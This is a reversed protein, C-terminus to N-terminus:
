PASGEPQILAHASESRAAADPRNETLPQLFASIADAVAAASERELALGMHDAGEVTRHVGRTSQTAIRANAATLARRGRDDPATASLVLLPVDGLRERADLAQASTDPMAARVAAVSRWYWTTRCHADFAAGAEGPLDRAGPMGGLTAALRMLGLGAITEGHRMIWADASRIAADVDPPFDPTGWAYGPDLFVLGAVEDPFEDALLAGVHAGWSHGVHVYPGAEGAAAVLLHLERAASSADAESTREDSWGWGARDYSCVRTVNALRPQVLAWQASSSGDGHDLLVTPSGAGTCDLHLRRGDIDVLRGPAPHRAADRRTAVAQYGTGGLALGLLVVLMVTVRRWWARAARRGARGETEPLAASRRCWPFNV